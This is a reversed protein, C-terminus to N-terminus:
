KVFPPKFVRLHAKLEKERGGCYEDCLEHFRPSHNMETLHALEHCIVYERLEPPYFVLVQSLAIVGQASCHGLVRHGNSITWMLPEKGVRQAVDKAVPLLIQPALSQGIRDLFKSITIMTDHSHMDWRDGVMIQLSPFKGNLLIKDPAYSQSVISVSFEPMQIQQGIAYLEGPKLQDLRPQMGQLIGCLADFDICPPVTAYVMGGRWRAHVARANAKVSIHVPGLAPVMYTGSKNVSAM